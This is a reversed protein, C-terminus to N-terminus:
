RVTLNRKKRILIVAGAAAATVVAAIAVVGYMNIKYRLSFEKLTQNSARDTVTLIYNGTETITFGNFEQPEGGNKSLTVSALDKSAYSIQATQGEIRVEVAPPETDRNLEVELIEGYAGKLTVLYSGDTEMTLLTGEGTDLTNGNFSATFIRTGKPATFTDRNVYTNNIEFTFEYDGSVLRYSGYEATEQRENLSVEEEGRYLIYQGEEPYIAVSQNIIMGEPVSSRFTFGNELTVLYMKEDELYVQSRGSAERDEQGSDSEQGSGERSSDEGQGSGEQGSDEDQGLASEQTEDTNGAETQMGDLSGEGAEKVKGSESFLQDALAAAIDDGALGSESAIQNLIGATDSGTLGDIQRTLAGAAGSVAGSADQRKEDIRFRFVTRYEEQQSLPVNKDYVAILRMVYTGRASLMQGSVYDMPVGDKEATCFVDVPIEVYVPRDTIGGNSVNSYIFYKGDISHEYLDYDSHYKEGMSVEHIKPGALASDEALAAQAAGPGNYVDEAGGESIWDQALEEAGSSIRSLYSDATDDNYSAAQAKDPLGAAMCCGAFLLLGKKIGKNM